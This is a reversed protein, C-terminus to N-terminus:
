GGDVEEKGKPEEEGEEKEELAEELEESVAPACGRGDGGRRRRFPMGMEAGVAAAKGGGEGREERLRLLMDERLLPLLLLPLAVSPGAPCPLPLFPRVDECEDERLAFPEDPLVAMRRLFAIGLGTKLGNSKREQSRHLHLTHTCAVKETPISM